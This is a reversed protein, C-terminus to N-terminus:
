QCLGWTIWSRYEEWLGARTTLTISHLELLNNKEEESLPNAKATKSEMIAQQFSLGNIERTLCLLTGYSGIGLEHLCQEIKNSCETLDLLKALFPDKM